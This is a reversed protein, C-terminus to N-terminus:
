LAGTQSDRNLGADFLYEVPVLPSLIACTIQNLRWISGFHGVNSQSQPRESAGFPCIDSVHSSICDLSPRPAYLLTCRGFVITRRQGTM